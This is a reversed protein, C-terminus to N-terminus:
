DNIKRIIYDKLGTETMWWDHFQDLKNGVKQSNKWIFSGNENLEDIDFGTEIM